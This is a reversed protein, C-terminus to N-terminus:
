ILELGQLDRIEGLYLALAEVFFGSLNGTAGGSSFGVKLTVADAPVTVVVKGVRLETNGPDAIFEIGTGTNFELAEGDKWVRISVNNGQSTGNGRGLAAFTIKKGRLFTVLRAPLEYYMYNSQQTLIVLMADLGTLDSVVTSAQYNSSVFKTIDVGGKGIPLVNVRSYDKTLDQSTIVTAIFANPSSAIRNNEVVSIGNYGITTAHDFVIGDPIQFLFNNRFVLTSADAINFLARTLGSGNVTNATFKLDTGYPNSGRCITCVILDDTVNGEFWNNEVILNYCGRAYIAKGGNGSEFDCNRIDWHYGYEIYIAADSNTGSNFIYCDEVKNLNTSKFQIISGAIHADSPLSKIFSHKVNSTGYYGSRGGRWVTFIFNGLYAEETNAWIEINEFLAYATYNERDQQLFFHKGGVCQLNRINLGQTESTTVFVSNGAGAGISTRASYSSTGSLGEGTICAGNPVIVNNLYYYSNSKPILVTNFLTIATQVSVTDDTVGDGKAGFWKVNVDGDYQRVWCGTGVNAADFWAGLQTQNNWDTPFVATPDIVTGGNHISRDKAADWYFVGGGGELGAHYGKVLYRLDSRRQDPTLTLLEDISNVAVVGRGIMTSGLVGALEQRLVADGLLVLNASDTAWTGTTTYPLTAGENAAYFRDGRRFYQKRTTINLDATYNGLFTYGAAFLEREFREEAAIVGESVTEIDSSLSAEVVDLSAQTAFYEGNQFAASGLTSLTLEVDEIRDSLDSSSEIPVLTSGDFQYLEGTTRIVLVFWRPTPSSLWNSSVRFYLRSDTTLFYASGNSPNAPLTNTIGDINRDFLFSFKLINEDMGSNWGSEGFDWGYKAEGFPSIKQTM